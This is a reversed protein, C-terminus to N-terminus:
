NILVNQMYEELCIQDTYIEEAVEKGVYRYHWPEYTTGTISEKERPYRLIFGYSHANEALWMYVDETSSKSKDANIDVAVGLQHESTGPVAVWEEALIQATTNSYGESIFDQIKDDFIKQQEEATRYGEVVILYLGEERAADLMEQLDPYIRSDIKQGNPLETLTVSYDEPIENWRNVVMLNWEESVPIMHENAAAAGTGSSSSLLGIKILMGGVVCLMFFTIVVISWKRETKNRSTKDNAM